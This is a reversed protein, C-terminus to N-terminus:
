IWERWSDPEEHQEGVQSDATNEEQSCPGYMVDCVTAVTWLECGHETALERTSCADGTVHSVCAAASLKVSAWQSIHASKFLIVCTFSPTATQGWLWIMTTEGGPQAWILPIVRVRTQSFVPVHQFVLVGQTVAEPERHAAEHLLSWLYHGSGQGGSTDAPNPLSHVHSHAM